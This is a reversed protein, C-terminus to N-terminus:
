VKQEEKEQAPYHEGGFDIDHGAANADEIAAQQYVESNERYHKNAVRSAADIFPYQDRANYHRRSAEHMYGLELTKLDNISQPIREAMPAHVQGQNEVLLSAADRALDSKRKAENSEKALEQYTRVQHNYGRVKREAENRISQTTPKESM